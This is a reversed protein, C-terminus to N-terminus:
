EMMEEDEEEDGEDDSESKTYNVDLNNSNKNNSNKSSNTDNIKPVLYDFIINSIESNIKSILLTNFMTRVRKRYKIINELTKECEEITSYNDVSERVFISYPFNFSSILKYSFDIYNSCIMNTCVDEIFNYTHYYTTFRKKISFLFRFLVDPQPYLHYDTKELIFTIVRYIRNFYDDQEKVDMMFINYGGDLYPHYEDCDRGWGRDSANLCGKFLFPIAKLGKDFYYTLVKMLEAEEKDSYIRNLKSEVYEYLTGNFYLQSITNVEENETIEIEDNFYNKQILPFIKLKYENDISDRDKKTELSYVEFDKFCSNLNIDLDFYTEEIM